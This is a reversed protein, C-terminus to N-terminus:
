DENLDLLKITIITLESTRCHDICINVFASFSVSRSQPFREAKNGGLWYDVTRIDPFGQRKLAWYSPLYYSCFISNEYMGFESVFRGSLIDWNQWPEQTGHWVNGSTWTFLRCVLSCYNSSVNTFTAWLVTLRQDAKDVTLHGETIIFIQISRLSQLFYVNTFSDLQSIQKEIILTNM